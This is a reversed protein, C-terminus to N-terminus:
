PSYTSRGSSIRGAKSRAWRSTSRPETASTLTLVSSRARAPVTANAWYAVQLGSKAADARHAARERRARLLRRHRHDADEVALRLYPSRLTTPGEGTEKEANRPSFCHSNCGDNFCRSIPGCFAITAGKSLERVARVFLGQVNTASHNCRFRLAAPETRNPVPVPIECPTPRGVQANPDRRNRKRSIILRGCGDPARAM